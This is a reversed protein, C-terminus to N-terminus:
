HSSHNRRNFHFSHTQHFVHKYAVPYQCSCPNLDSAFFVSTSQSISEWTDNISRRLIQERPHWTLHLRLRKEVEGTMKESSTVVIKFCSLFKAMIFFTRGKGYRVSHARYAFWLVVDVNGTGTHWSMCISVCVLVYGEKVYLTSLDTPTLM